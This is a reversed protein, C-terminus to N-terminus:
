NRQKRIADIRECLQRCIEPDKVNATFPTPDTGVVDRFAEVFAPEERTLWEYLLVRIEKLKEDFRTTAANIGELFERSLADRGQPEANLSAM